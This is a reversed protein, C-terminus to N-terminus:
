TTKLSSMGGDVALVQGTIWTSNESLLFAAANALDEATGIRQLPHRKANAERKQDTNLLANALPTDTLSPAICNVRIKPAYEAALAKCLGEIAGKSASVQTHFPLGTQVAVTSFMLVSASESKKLSPMCLQLAHIAGLVQLQYDKAFDAIKIREFPRLTIAGVCYAFADVQEPLNPLTALEDSADFRHYQVNPHQFSPEVQHYTGYVNHGEEAMKKCLEAGIGSAAAIIIVNM